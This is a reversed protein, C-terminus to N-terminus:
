VVFGLKEHDERGVGGQDTLVPLLQEFIVFPCDSEDGGRELIRVGVGQSRGPLWCRASGVLGILTVAILSPAGGGFASTGSESASQSLPM